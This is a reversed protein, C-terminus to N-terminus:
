RRGLVKSMLVGIAVSVAMAAIPQQRVLDTLQNAMRIIADGDEGAQPQMPKGTAESAPTQGRASADKSHAALSPGAAGTNEDM